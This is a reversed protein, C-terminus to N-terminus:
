LATAYSLAIKVMELMEPSPITNKELEVLANDLMKEIVKTVKEENM